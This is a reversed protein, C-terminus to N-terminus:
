TFPVPVKNQGSSYLYLRNKDHSPLRGLTIKSVVRDPFSAIGDHSLESCPMQWCRIYDYNIQKWLGLSYMHTYEDYHPLVECYPGRGVRVFGGAGVQGNNLPEVTYLPVGYVRNM